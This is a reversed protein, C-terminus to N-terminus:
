GGAPEAPLNYFQFVFGIHDRRHRLASVEVDGMRYATSLDRVDFVRDAVSSVAV